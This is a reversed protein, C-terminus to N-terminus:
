GAFADKLANVQTELLAKFGANKLTSMVAVVLVAAVIIMGVYELTGQGAEGKSALQQLRIQTKVLAKTM